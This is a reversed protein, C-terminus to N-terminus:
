SLLLGNSCIRIKVLCCAMFGYPPTSTYAWADDHLQTILKVGRPFRGRYGNSIISPPGWHRDHTLLIIMGSHSSRLIPTFHTRLKPESKVLTEYYQEQSNKPNDPMAHFVYKLVLSAVAALGSRGDLV